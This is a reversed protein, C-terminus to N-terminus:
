AKAVASFLHGIIRKNILSSIIIIIWFVDVLSDHQLIALSVLSALGCEANVYLRDHQYHDPNFM